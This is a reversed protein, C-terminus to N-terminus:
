PRSWTDPIPSSSPWWGATWTVPRTTSTGQLVGDVDGLARLAVDGVDTRYGLCPTNFGTTVGDITAPAWVGPRANDRDFVFVQRTASAGGIFSLAVFAESTAVELTSPDLGYRDSWLLSGWAPEWSVWRGYWSWIQLSLRGQTSDYWVTVAYDSGFWVRPTVSVGAGFDASPSVQQSRECLPLSQATYGWTSVAGEPTIMSQLAGPSYQEQSEPQQELYYRFTTAPRADGAGNELQIGTLYRKYTDGRLTGSTSTVNAVASDAGAGPSPDYQLAVRFLPTRDGDRVVIRQLYQNEYRDQWANPSDDPVSKHPDAYERPSEAAGKWLKPAYEFTATRGFVDTVTTLYCAKTYPLGGSEGPQQVRQEVVPAIGTVPDRPWQQNYGYQVCDGWLNSIRALHWVRAYQRM